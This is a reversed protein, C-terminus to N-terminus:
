RFVSSKSKFINKDRAGGPMDALIFIFFLIYIEELMVEWHSCWNQHFQYLSEENASKFCQLPLYAWVWARLARHALIRLSCTVFLGNSMSRSKSSVRYVPEEFGVQLVTPTFKDHGLEEPYLPAFNLIYM